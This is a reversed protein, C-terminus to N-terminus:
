PALTPFWEDPAVSTLYGREEGMSSALHGSLSARLELQGSALDELDEDDFLQQEKAQEVAQAIRAVVQECTASGQYASLAHGSRAELVDSGTFVFSRPLLFEVVRAGVLREQEAQEDLRGLFTMRGFVLGATNWAKTPAM